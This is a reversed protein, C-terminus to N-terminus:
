DLMDRIGALLERAANLFSPNHTAIFELDGDNAAKELREAINAFEDACIGRSSGKIGHVIRNYDSINEFNVNECLDLLPPTNTLFSRLVYFYLEVDGEFEAMAKDMDLGHIGLKLARRDIGSRRSLGVREKLAERKAQLQIQAEKQQELYQTEKDKDRLWRHIVADLRAREIPKSIYAQFGSDLFLQENGVLANATLAIIPIAKAYDTGIDRIKGAAEIGNMGPMMHDMFIADYKVDEKRVADIAQQGSTATDVQMHYPNMMGRTVDLNAPMDDVILVRAYPLSIRKSQSSQRRKEDTYHLGRLNNAVEPGIVAGSVFGQKIKVTFTSGEGYRSEATITGDMMEVIMKTISLGLGTGEIGKNASSDIQTYDSFLSGLYEPKIGQGTDSVWITMWVDVAERECSMGLEVTGEKTYKFANSLLNNLIQRIRLDDGFLKGPLTEDISLIFQIPNEGIRLINSTVTDNILSPIEYEDPLLEFKGAEIKSIDLIDNVLDLLVEGADAVKEINSRADVSMDCDELVLGSLGIIANLPTRMEHSMKALFNSKAENAEHLRQTMEDRLLANMIMLGGSHLIDIEEDTFTRERRCDDFSLFGYFRGQHHLPIALLSKIGQQEMIAREMPGMRSAPSNVCENQAFVREWEPVDAYSLKEPADQKWLGREEHWQCKNVYFLAGDIVENSWIHIRDVDVCEAILRIGELLSEEFDKEFEPALLLVSVDNMTRLLNAQTASHNTENNQM